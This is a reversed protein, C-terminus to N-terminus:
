TRVEGKRRAFLLNKEAEAMAEAFRVNEPKAMEVSFEDPKMSRVDGNAFLVNRIEGYHNVSYDCAIVVTKPADKLPALYFYSVGEIPTSVCRLLGPDSGTSRMLVELNPPMADNNDSSYIECCKSVGKLNAVCMARNSMEHARIFPPMFFAVLLALMIVGTPITPLWALIAKGFSTKLMWMIILWTVFLSVLWGIFPILGVIFSAVGALLITLFCRGFTAVPSKIIYKGGIWLLLPTILLWAILFLVLLPIQWWFLWSVGMYEALM